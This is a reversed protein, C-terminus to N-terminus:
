ADGESSPAPRRKFAAGFAVPFAVLLGVIVFAVGLCLAIVVRIALWAARQGLRSLRSRTM